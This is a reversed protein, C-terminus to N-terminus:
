TFFAMEHGGYVHRPCLVEHGQGGSAGKLRVERQWITHEDPLRTFCLGGVGQGPKEQAVIKSQSRLGDATRASM